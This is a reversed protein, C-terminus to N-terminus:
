QLLGACRLLPRIEGVPQVLVGNIGLSRAAEVNAPVDDFFVAAQPSVGCNQLVLRFGEPQPKRIGMTVSSFIGDFHDLATKFKKPWITSHVENTNTFAVIRRTQKLERLCEAADPFLDGYISNWGSVFDAFTLDIAFTERIHRHYEPPSLLGREFQQFAHDFQFQSEIVSAQTGLVAAWSSFVRAFDADFIVGGLDFIILSPSNM